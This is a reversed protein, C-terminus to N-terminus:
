AQDGSQRRWCGALASGILCHTAASIAAPVATLPDVFHRGALVVALGSNQMGVEISVTRRIMEGYGLMRALGWGLGFGGAHLLGVSVLLPGASALIPAGNQGMISAVIMVILLVSLVPSVTAVRATFRPAVTNLLVGLGVPLIVVQFTSRFLGWADVEVLTGAFWSTLMPTMVIAAATSCATMTVSLAVHARALYAVVNSATGGPCCSVLILGVAMAPELGMLRGLGWGLVPMITFQGLLGLAVPRPVEMVRRFDAVTLTVGMGLMILALGGVIWSGSFWTFWAPRMLAAAGGLVVWVPFLTTLAGAIRVM